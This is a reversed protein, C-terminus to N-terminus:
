PGEEDVCVCDFVAALLFSRPGDRLTEVRLAVGASCTLDRSAFVAEARAGEEATVPLRTTTPWPPGHSIVLTM